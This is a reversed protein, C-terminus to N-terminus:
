DDILQAEILMLGMSDFLQIKSGTSVVALCRQRLELKKWERCFKDERISWTGTDVEVPERGRLFAASGDVNLRIRYPGTTTAEGYLLTKGTLMRSLADGSARMGQAAELSAEPGIDPFGGADLLLWLLRGVTRLDVGSDPHAARHVVVLDYAPIVFAYQGGTGAAYFTGDPLDVAPAM